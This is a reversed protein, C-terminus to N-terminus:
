ILTYFVGSDLDVYYNDLAYIM